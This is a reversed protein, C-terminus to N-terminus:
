RINFVRAWFGRERLCYLEDCLGDNKKELEDMEKRLKEMAYGLFKNSKELTENQGKLKRFKERWEDCDKVLLSTGDIQDALKAELERVKAWTPRVRKRNEEM